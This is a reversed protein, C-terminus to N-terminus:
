IHLWCIFVSESLVSTACISLYRKALVALTPYRSQQLKWWTPPDTDTSMVPEKRYLRWNKILLLPILLNWNQLIEIVADEINSGTHDDYLPSTELCFTKLCWETGIFHITVSLYLDHATSTWLDLTLLCYTADELKPKVKSDRVHSYM